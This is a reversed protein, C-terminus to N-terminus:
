PTKQHPIQLLLNKTETEGLLKVNFGVQSGSGRIADVRKKKLKTYPIQYHDLTKFHMYGTGTSNHADYLITIGDSVHVTIRNTKSPIKKVTYKQQQIFQYLWHTPM